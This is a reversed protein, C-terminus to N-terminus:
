VNYQMTKMYVRALPPRYSFADYYIRWVSCTDSRQVYHVDHLTSLRCMHHDVNTKGRYILFNYNTRYKTEFETVICNFATQMCQITRQPYQDYL